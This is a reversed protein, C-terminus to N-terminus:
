TMSRGGRKALGAFNMNPRGDMGDVLDVCASCRECRGMEQLGCVTLGASAIQDLAFQLLIKNAAM